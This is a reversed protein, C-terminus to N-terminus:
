PAAHGSAAVAKSTAIIQPATRKAIRGLAVSLARALGEPNQVALPESEDFTQSWVVAGTKPDTLTLELSVRGVWHHKDRDVEEFAVVRGGLVLSADATQDRVVAKWDGTRGLAQQLYGSVLVGPTATWRHYHYYDLRYPSSRYVIREDDYAADSSLPEVVLVQTGSPKEAHDTVALQYYRVPPVTGGCATAIVLLLSIRM